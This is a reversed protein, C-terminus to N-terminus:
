PSGVGLIQALNPCYKTARVLIARTAVDAWVLIAANGRPQAIATRQCVQQM